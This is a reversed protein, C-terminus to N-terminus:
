WSAKDRLPGAKLITTGVGASEGARVVHETLVVSSQDKAMSVWAKLVSIM